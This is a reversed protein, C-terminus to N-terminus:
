KAGLNLTLQRTEAKLLEAAIKRMRYAWGSARKHKARVRDYANKAQAYQKTLTM